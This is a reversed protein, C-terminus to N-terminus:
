HVTLSDLLRHVDPLLRGRRSHGGMVVYLCFPRGSETYFWQAGSQGPVTRQLQEPRFDQTRPRPRGKTRFLATSAASPQYEFIVVLVHDRSMREVAGVGFDGRRRPLPFNAAHMVPYATSGDDPHRRYVHADWGTPPEVTLGFAHVRPM